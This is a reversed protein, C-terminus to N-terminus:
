KSKNSNKIRVPVYCKSNFSIRIADCINAYKVFVLLYKYICLEYYFCFRHFYTLKIRIKRVDVDIAGSFYLLICIYSYSSVCMRNFYPQFPGKCRCHERPKVKYTNQYKYNPSCFSMEPTAGFVSCFGTQNFKM